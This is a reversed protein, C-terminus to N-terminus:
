GRQLAHTHLSQTSPLALGQLWATRGVILWSACVVNFHRWGWFHKTGTWPSHLSHWKPTNTLAWFLCPHDGALTRWFVMSCLTVIDHIKSHSGLFTWALHGKPFTFTIERLYVSIYEAVLCTSFHNGIVRSSRTEWITQSGLLSMSLSPPPHNHNPMIKTLLNNSLLLFAHKQYYLNSSCKKQQFIGQWQKAAAWGLVQRIPQTMSECNPEGVGGGWMCNVPHTVGCAWWSSVKWLIKGPM